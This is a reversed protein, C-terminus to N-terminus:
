QKVKETNGAYSLSILERSVDTGTMAEKGAKLSQKAV